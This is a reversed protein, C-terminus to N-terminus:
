IQTGPPYPLHSCAIALESAFTVAEMMTPFQFGLGEVWLECPPDYDASAPTITCTVGGGMCWEVTFPRKDPSALVTWSHPGPSARWREVSFVSAAAPDLKWYDRWMM